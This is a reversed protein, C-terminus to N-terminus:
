KCTDIPAYTHMIHPHRCLGSYFTMNWSATTVPLQSGDSVTSPVPSLDETLTYVGKEMLGDKWNRIVPDKAHAIHENPLSM